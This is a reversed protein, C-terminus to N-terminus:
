NLSVQNVDLSWDKMVLETITTWRSTVLRQHSIWLFKNYTLHGTKWSYNLSLQEIDLSWDKLVLETFSTYRWTVLIETTKHNFITLNDYLRQCENHVSLKFLSPLFHWWFWCLSYNGRVEIISCLLGSGKVNSFCTRDQSLFAFTASKFQNSLDLGM